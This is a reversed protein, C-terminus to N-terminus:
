MIQPKPPSVTNEATDLEEVHPTSIVLFRVASSAANCLSLLPGLKSQYRFSAVLIKFLFISKYM